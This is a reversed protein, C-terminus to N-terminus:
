NYLLLLETSLNVLLFCLELSERADEALGRLTSFRDSRGGPFEVAGGRVMGEMDPRISGNLVHSRM